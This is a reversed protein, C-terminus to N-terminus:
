KARNNWQDAYDMMREKLIRWDQQKENEVVDEFLGPFSTELTPFEINSDLLRGVSIGVLDALKYQVSAQWQMETKKRRNYANITESIEGFTMEWYDFPNIGVELASPYM